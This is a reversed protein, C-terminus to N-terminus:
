SICCQSCVSSTGGSPGKNQIIGDFIEWDGRKELMEGGLTVLRGRGEM